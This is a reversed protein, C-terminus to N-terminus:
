NKRLGEGWTSIRGIDNVLVRSPRRIRYGGPICEGNLLRFILLLLAITIKHRSVPRATHEKKVKCGDVNSTLAESKKSTVFKLFVQFVSKSENEHLQLKFVGTRAETTYILFKSTISGTNASSNIIAIVPFLKRSPNASVTQEVLSPIHKKPTLIKRAPEALQTVPRNM